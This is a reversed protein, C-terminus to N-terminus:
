DCEIHQESYFPPICVMILKMKGEWFFKQNPNIILSDSQNLPFEKGDIGVKGKGEMIFVVEKCVKNTVRGKSPYRGTIEATSINLEKDNHEYEYIICNPNTIKNSEIKKIIM